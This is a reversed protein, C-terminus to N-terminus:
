ILNRLFRTRQERREGREGRKAGREVDESRERGEIEEGMEGRVDRRKGLSFTLFTPHFSTLSSGSLLSFPFSIREMQLSVPSLPKIVM